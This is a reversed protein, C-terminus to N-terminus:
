KQGKFKASRTVSLIHFVCGHLAEGRTIGQILYWTAWTVLEQFDDWEGTDSNM